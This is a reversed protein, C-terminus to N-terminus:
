RHQIYINNGYRRVTADKTHIVSSNSQPASYKLFAEMRNVGDSTVCGSLMSIAATVAIVKLTTKFSM